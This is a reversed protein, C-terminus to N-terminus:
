RGLRGIIDEDDNPQSNKLGDLFDDLDRIDYLQKGNPM